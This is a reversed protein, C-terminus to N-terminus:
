VALSQALELKASQEASLEIGAKALEDALSVVTAGRAAGVKAPKRYSITIGGSATENVRRLELGAVKASLEASITVTQSKAWEAYQRRCDASNKKEIGKAAAWESRTPLTRIKGQKGSKTTTIKLSYTM